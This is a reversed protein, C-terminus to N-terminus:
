TRRKLLEGLQEFPRQVPQAADAAADERAAREHMPVRPLALLLEEEILDILRIKRDAALVTETGPPLHEAESEAGILVARSSSELPWQMPRMCRQCILELTGTLAVRALVRSMERGFAVTARVENLRGTESRVFERPVRPMHSLPVVFEFEVKGDALLDIDILKSWGESM